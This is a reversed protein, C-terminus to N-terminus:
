RYVGGNVAIVQGTIYSAKDSCLFSVVGAVESFPIDLSLSIQKLAKEPLYGFLGQTMQLVPILSGTKGKNEKLIEDLRRYLETEDSSACQCRKRTAM